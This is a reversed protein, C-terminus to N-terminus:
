ALSASDTSDTIISSIEEESLLKPKKALAGAGLVRLLANSLTTIGVVLPYFLKSLLSFTHAVALGVK